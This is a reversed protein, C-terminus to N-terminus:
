RPPSGFMLRMLAGGGLAVLLFFVALAVFLHGTVLMGILLLLAGIGLVIKWPTTKLRKM